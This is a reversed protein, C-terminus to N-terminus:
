FGATSAPSGSDRVERSSWMPKADIVHVAPCLTKRNMKRGATGVRKSQLLTPAARNSRAVGQEWLLHELWASGRGSFIDFILNSFYFIFPCLSNFVGQNWNRM